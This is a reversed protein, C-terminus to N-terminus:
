DEVSKVYLIPCPAKKSIEYLIKAISTFIKGVLVEESLLLMGYNEKKAEELISTVIQSTDIIKYPALLINKVLFHVGSVVPSRKIANSKSEIYLISVRGNKKEALEEAFKLLKVPTKKNLVPILINLKKTKTLFAIKNFVVVDIPSYRIIADIKGNFFYKNSPKPTTLLMFIADAKIEEATELLGDVVTRASRIHPSIDTKPPVDAEYSKSIITGIKRWERTIEPFKKTAIIHVPSISGEEDLYSSVYSIMLEVDSDKDVALLIKKYM